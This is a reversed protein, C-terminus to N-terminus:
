TLDSQDVYEAPVLKHQIKKVKPSEYSSYLSSFTKMYKISLITHFIQGQTDAASIM